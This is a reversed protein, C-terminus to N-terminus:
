AAAGGLLRARAARAASTTAPGSTEIQDLSDLAAFAPAARVAISGDAADLGPVPALTIGDLSAATLDIAISTGAPVGPKVQFDLLALLGSLDGVTGRAFGISAFGPGNAGITVSLGSAPDGRVAQLDLAAPDYRVDIRGAGAVVARDISLPVTVAGGADAVLGRPASVAPTASRAQILVADAATLVGDGNVDGVVAPDVGRWFAFGTDAGGVVRLVRSADAVGLSGDGDADGLLGVIQQAASAPLSQAIGNISEVALHLLETAGYAATAPVSAQLTALVQTGAPIAAAAHVTVRTLLTGAPTGVTDLVAKSGPPLSQGPTVGTVSLLAPDYALTFVVDRATGDGSFSIPLGGSYSAAQVLAPTSLATAAAAATATVVLPAAAFVGDAITAATAQVTFQGPAAYSHMVQTAAGAVRSTSGDGWAVTWAALREGPTPGGGGLNVTVPVGVTAAAPGTVALAAPAGLVDIGFSRRSSLGQPDIVAVTIDAHQPGAPSWTLRGAADVVAGLPASVVAYSIPSHDPESGALQVSVTHGEVVIQNPVPALSPQGNMSDATLYALTDPKGALGLILGARSTGSQLAALQGALEEARPARGTAATFIDSVYATDSQGAHRGAFEPEAAFLAAVLAPDNSAKLLAVRNSLGGAEAARGLGIRYLENVLTTAPDRSFVKETAQAWHVKAEAENAFAAILDTRAAGARLTALWTDPEGATKGRGLFREYMWNVFVVDDAPVTGRAQFEVSSLMGAVADGHTTGAAVDQMYSTMGGVDSSRGLLSEYLRQIFAENTDPGISLRGDLLKIAETGTQALFTRTEAEDAFAAVLDTRTAGGRLTAIWTDADATTKERGLFREYMWNVFAGDDVPVTDRGRFETSALIDAAVAGRSAGAAMDQLYGARGIPDSVRGLLAEYLREIFAADTDAAVAPTGDVRQIASSAPTLFLGYGTALLRSLDLSSLQATSVGAVPPLLAFLQVVNSPSSAPQGPTQAVATITHIGESLEAGAVVGFVGDSSTTTTAAPLGDIFVQISAGPADTGAVISLGDVIGRAGFSGGTSALSLTPVPTATPIVLAVVGLGTNGARDTVAYILSSTTGATGSGPTFRLGALQAATLVQGAATLPTGDALTVLGNLPLSRIVAVLSDASDVPDTAPPIGLAQGARVPVLAPTVSAVSPVRAPGILLTAQGAVNNGAPDIVTFGFVSQVDHQGPTPTFLLTTLQGTTLRTGAALVTGDPLTITGIAPLTTVTITLDAPGFTTSIPAPIRIPTPAAGQVVTVVLSVVVPPATAVIGPPTSTVSIAVAAPATLGSQGTIVYTFSDAGNFGTTPTYRIKGAEIAATGHAPSAVSSLVSGPTDNGLVDILVSGGQVVTATDPAAVPATPPVVTPTVSIAVAATATLGSKGSIGYTFSDAGNFGTTPTYRIRGAEIAATGHAPSAVSSLM